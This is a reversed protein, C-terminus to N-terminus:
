KEFPNIVEEIEIWLEIYKKVWIYDSRQIETSATLVYGVQISNGDKLERYMPNKTKIANKSVEIFCEECSFNIYKELGEDINNAEIYAKKVYDDNIWYNDDKITTATKFLYKKM